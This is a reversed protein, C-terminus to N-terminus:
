TLKSHPLHPLPPSCCYFFFVCFRWPIFIDRQTFTPTSTPTTMSSYPPPSSTSPAMCSRNRFTHRTHYYTTQKLLDVPTEQMMEAMDMLIDRCVCVCESMGTDSDSYTLYSSLAHLRNDRSHDPFVACFTQCFYTMAPYSILLALGNGRASLIVSRPNSNM